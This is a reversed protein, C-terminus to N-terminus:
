HFFGGAFAPEHHAAMQLRGTLTFPFLPSLSFFLLFCPRLCCCTPLILSQLSSDYLDLASLSSSLVFCLQPLSIVCVPYPSWILPPGLIQLRNWVYLCTIDTQFCDFSPLFSNNQTQALISQTWQTAAYYLLKINKSQIFYKDSLTCKFWM